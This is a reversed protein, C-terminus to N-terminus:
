NSSANLQALFNELQVTDFNALVHSDVVITPVYSQGSVRKMEEYAAPNQGVDIEEFPIGHEKLYKKADICWGCLGRTYLKIQKMTKDQSNESLM